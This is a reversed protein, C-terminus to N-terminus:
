APSKTAFVLAYFRAIPYISLASLVHWVAHGQWFHDDPNCWIWNLDLYSCIAAGTMLALGLLYWRYRGDHPRDRRVFFLFAESCFIFITNWGIISQIPIEFIPVLKLLAINGLVLAAYLTTHARVTKTFGLRGANWSLLLGVYFFMGLFDFAQTVYNNTAHYVLSFAGMMFVVAALERLRYNSRPGSRRFRRAIVLAILLYAINSYTNAPEEVHGCLRAECWKINPPGYTERYSDYPCQAVPFEGSM